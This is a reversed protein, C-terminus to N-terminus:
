AQGIAIHDLFRIELPLRQKILGISSLLSGLRDSCFFAKASHIRGHFDIRANDIDMGAVDFLQSAADFAFGNLQHNVACVVSLRTIQDIIDRDFM